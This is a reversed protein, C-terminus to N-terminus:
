QAHLPTSCANQSRVVSLVVRFVIGSVRDGSDDVFKQISSSKSFVWGETEQLFSFFDEAILLSDSIVEDQQETNDSTFDGIVFKFNYNLLKQSISADLFEINVVPYSLDREGNFKFDDGYVIQKVQAHSTFYSLLNSKIQNLSLM